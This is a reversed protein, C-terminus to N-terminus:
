RSYNLCLPWPEDLQSTGFGGGADEVGSKIGPSQTVACQVKDKILM